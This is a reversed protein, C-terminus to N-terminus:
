DDVAAMGMIDFSHASSQPTEGGIVLCTKPAGVKVEAREWDFGKTMRFGSLGIEIERLRGSRGRARSMADSM